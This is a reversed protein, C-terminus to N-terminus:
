GGVEGALVQEAARRGSRLAGEMLGHWAGATHEGAFVLAGAPATLQPAQLAGGPTHVSYAAGVWPDDRWTSLVAEQPRLRLDPRLAAVRGAWVEPGSGVSLRELAAPSGAFSCAVPLPAGEPDRQTFTWFREPVALTASPPAPEELPVFLKAAHGYRIAAFARAVAEPLPPDFAIRHLVSAPVCVVCVDGAVEGGDCIARVGGPGHVIRQVPRGLLLGDRLPRALEEALRQNGGSISHTAYDGAAKGADGLCAGAQDRAAAAGSVELRSQLVERAAPDAVLRRLTREADEDELRPDAAAEAVARRAAALVRPHVPPCGRPERNGYTTGKELLELQLEAAVARVTEDGPLVFEAGREVVSGGALRQSWVRGGVRDRAEIVTTAVGARHLAGAAALGAFGAGVVV